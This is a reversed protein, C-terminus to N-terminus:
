TKRAIKQRFKPKERRKCIEHKNCSEKVSNAKERNDKFLILKELILYTKEAIKSSFGTKEVIEQLFEISEPSKKCFHSNKSMIRPLIEHRFFISLPKKM